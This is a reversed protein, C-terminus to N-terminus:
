AVISATIAATGLLLQSTVLALLLRNQSSHMEDRLDAIESCLDTRLDAMERCLETRLDAMEVRLAAGMGDVDHRRAVDNWGVPPLYEMLVEAADHGLVEDLREYLDRRQRETVSM